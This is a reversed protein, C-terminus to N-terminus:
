ETILPCQRTPGLTEYKPYENKQISPIMLYKGDKISLLPKRQTALIYDTMKAALCVWLPRNNTNASLHCCISDLM